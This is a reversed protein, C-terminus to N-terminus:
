SSNGLYSSPVCVPSCVPMKPHCIGPPLARYLIAGHAVSVGWARPQGRWTSFPLQRLKAARGAGARRRELWAPRPSQQNLSEQLQDQLSSEARLITIQVRFLASGHRLDGAPATRTLGAVARPAALQLHLAPGPVPPCLHGRATPSPGGFGGTPQPRSALSCSARSGQWRAM